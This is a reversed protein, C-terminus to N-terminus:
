RRSRVDFAAVAVASALCIVGVVAWPGAPSIFSTAVALLLTGGILLCIFLADVPRV